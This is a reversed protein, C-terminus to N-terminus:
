NSLNYPVSPLYILYSKPAHTSYYPSPSALSKPYVMTGTGGQRGFVGSPSGQMVLPAETIVPIVNTRSIDRGNCLGHVIYGLISNLTRTCLFILNTNRDNERAEPPLIILCPWGCYVLLISEPQSM